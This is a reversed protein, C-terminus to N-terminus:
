ALLLLRVSNNYMQYVALGLDEDVIADLVRDVSDLLQMTNNDIISLSSHHHHNNNNNNSSGNNHNNEDNNVYEENSCM